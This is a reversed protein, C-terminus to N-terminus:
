LHGELRLEHRGRADPSGLFLQMNERMDPPTEPKVAVNALFAYSGDTSVTLGGALDVIADTDEVSAAVGEDRTLFEAHFTGLTERHIQPMVFNTVTITGEAVVPVGGSIRLEGFRVSISGRMGPLQLASQLSELALSANLNRVALEGSVGFSVDAQLFGAAPRAEVAYGLRGLFLDAVRFKWKLNQLYVGGANVELASGSWVSGSLGGAILDPPAFWQYAVRAPFFLLTAVVFVCVGTKILRSRRPM